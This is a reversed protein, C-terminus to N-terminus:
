VLPGGGAAAAAGPVTGNAFTGGTRAHDLHGNKIEEVDRRLSALEAALRGYDLAKLSIDLIAAAARVEVGPKGCHLNRSLTEAASNNLRLLLTITGELIQERARDYAARFAPLLLWRRLTADSIGVREAAREHTAESLLASVAQEQKRTLKPGGPM